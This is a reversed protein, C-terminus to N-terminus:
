GGRVIDSTEAPTRSRPLPSRAEALYGEVAQSVGATEPELRRRLLRADESTLTLLPRRLSMAWGRKNPFSSLRPILEAIDVGLRPPALSKLELELGHSFQRGVLPVPRPLEAVGGSATARGFVRGRDRTPNHFAGRTAYLLLEDGESVAAAAAAARDRTFAMRRESVVWAIADRDGLIILHSRV